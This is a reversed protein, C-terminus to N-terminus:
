NLKLLQIFNNFDATDITLNDYSTSILAYDYICNNKQTTLVRFFRTVGDVSGKAVVLMAAREQHTTTTKEFTEVNNIGTLISNTLNPLNSLDFKRCASNFIFIRNSKYNNFAFDSGDSDIQQWPSKISRSLNNEVVASKSYSGNNESSSCASLILILIFLLKKKM